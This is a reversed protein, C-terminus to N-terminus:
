KKLSTQLMESAQFDRFVAPGSASDLLEAVKSKQVVSLSSAPTEPDAEVRYWTPMSDDDDGDDTRTL